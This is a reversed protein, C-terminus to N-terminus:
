PKIHTCNEWVTGTGASITSTAPVPVLYPLRVWVRVVKKPFVGSKGTFGVHPQWSVRKKSNQHEPINRSGCPM